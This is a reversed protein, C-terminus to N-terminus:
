HWGRHVTLQLKKELLLSSAIAPSAENTKWKDSIVMRKVSYAIISFHQKM